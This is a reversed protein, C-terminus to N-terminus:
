VTAAFRKLMSICSARARALWGDLVRRATVKNRQQWIQRLHEKIPANLDLAEALREMKM